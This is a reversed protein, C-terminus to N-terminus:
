VPRRPVLRVAAEPVLRHYRGALPPPFTGDGPPPSPLVLDVGVGNQVLAAALGAGIYGGGVVVIREGEHLVAHPDIQDERAGCEAVARERRREGLPVM